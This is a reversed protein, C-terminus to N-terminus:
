VFTRRQPPDGKFLIQLAEQHGFDELTRQARFHSGQTAVILLTSLGCPNCANM